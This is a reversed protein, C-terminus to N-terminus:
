ELHDIVYNLDEQMAYLRKQEIETLNPDENLEDAHMYVTRKTGESDTIEGVSTGENGGITVEFLPYSTDGVTATFSVVIKDDEENQAISVYDEWQGPYYLTGYKTEILIEESEADAASSTAEEKNVTETSNSATNDVSTNNSSANSFSNTDKASCGTLLLGSLFVCM